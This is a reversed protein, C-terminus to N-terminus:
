SIVFEEKSFDTAQGYTLIHFPPIPLSLLPLAGKKLQKAKQRQSATMHIAHPTFKQNPIMSACVGPGGNAASFNYTQYHPCGPMLTQHIYIEKGAPPHLSTKRLLIMQPLLKTTPSRLHYPM